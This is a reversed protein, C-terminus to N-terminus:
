KEKFILTKTQKVIWYSYRNFFTEETNIFLEDYISTFFIEKKIVPKNIPIFLM